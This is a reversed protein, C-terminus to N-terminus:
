GERPCLQTHYAVISAHGLQLCEMFRNATYIVKGLYAFFM